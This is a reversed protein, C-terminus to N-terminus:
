STHGYGSPSQKNCNNAVNTLCLMRNSNYTILMFLAYHLILQLRSNELSPREKATKIRQSGYGAQPPQQHQVKAISSEDKNENHIRNRDNPTNQLIQSPCSGSRVHVPTITSTLQQTGSQSQQHQQQTPKSTNATSHQLLWQLQQSRKSPKKIRTEKSSLNQQPINSNGTSAGMHHPPLDPPLAQPPTLNALTLRANINELDHRMSSSYNSQQQLTPNGSFTHNSMQMHSSITACNAPPILKWSHMLQQQDRARLPTVYNGPFIGSVDKWNKGKFCGDLCRETVMYVCDKKLELEDNNHRPTSAATNSAQQSQNQQPSTNQSINAASLHHQQEQAATTQGTAMSTSPGMEPEFDNPVSLIEASHRNTSQMINVASDNNLLANLSGFDLYISEYM